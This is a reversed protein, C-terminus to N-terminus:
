DVAKLVFSAREGISFVRLSKRTVINVSWLLHAVVDMSKLVVLRTGGNVKKTRIIDLITVIASNAQLRQQLLQVIRTCQKLVVCMRALVSERIQQYLDSKAFLVAVRGRESEHDRARRTIGGDKVAIESLDNKWRHYRRFLYRLNNRILKM